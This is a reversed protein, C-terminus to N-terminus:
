PFTSGPLPFIVEREVPIEPLAAWVIQREWVWPKDTKVWQIQNIACMSDHTDPIFKEPGCISVMELELFAKNIAEKDLTGAKEIAAFLVQAMTYGGFGAATNIPTGHEKYWEDALSQSTRGGIGPFPYAPNWFDEDLIGLPLDGGWAVVDEYVMSARGIWALKPVWGLSHAQRWFIGFDPAPLNAWLIQCEAAKWELIISSFDTTGMPYLGFKEDVRYPYYRGSEKLAKSFVEYWGAGDADNSALVAVKRNTKDAFMDTIVFVSDLITYGRKGYRFDGPPPPMGIRFSLCWDYVGLPGHTDILDKIGFYWPEFPTRSHVLPTKYRTCTTREPIALSPVGHGLIAVVNDALIARTTLSSAETPDSKDDYVIIRVPVRRGEIMIGGLKNIDEMAKKAGWYYGYGFGSFMGTMSTVQGIVVEEVPKTPPAALIFYYLLAAAVVVVVIVCIIVALLKRSIARM